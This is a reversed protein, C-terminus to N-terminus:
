EYGVNQIPNCDPTYKPAAMTGHGGGKPRWSLYNAYFLICFQPM